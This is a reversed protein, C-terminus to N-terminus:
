ETIELNDHFKSLHKQRKMLKERGRTERRMFTNWSPSFFIQYLFFRGGVSFFRHFTFSKERREHREDRTRAIIECDNNVHYERTPGMRLNYSFKTAARTSANSLDHGRHERVCRSTTTYESIWKKWKQQQKSDSWLGVRQEANEPTHDFPVARHQSMLTLQGCNM